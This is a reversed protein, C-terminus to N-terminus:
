SVSPPISSGLSRLTCVKVSLYNRSGQTGLPSRATYNQRGVKIEETCTGNIIGTSNADM